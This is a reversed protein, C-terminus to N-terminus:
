DLPSHVSIKERVDATGDPDFSMRSVPNAIIYVHLKCCITLWLTSLILRTATNCYVSYFPQLGLNKTKIFMDVLISCPQAM